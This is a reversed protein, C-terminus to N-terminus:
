SDPGRKMLELVMCCFYSVASGALLYSVVKYSWDIRRTERIKGRLNATSASHQLGASLRVYEFERGIRAPLNFYVVDSKELQVQIKM